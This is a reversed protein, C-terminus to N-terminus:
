KWIAQAALSIVAGLMMAAGAMWAIRTTLADIRDFIKDFKKNIQSNLLDQHKWKEDTEGGHQAIWVTAEGITTVRHKSNSL